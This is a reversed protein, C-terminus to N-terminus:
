KFFDKVKADVFSKFNIRFRDVNFREANRRIECPDFKDEVAEFKKVAKILSSEKQENFFIGTPSANNRSQIEEGTDELPIVTDRIGGRGFAIVPIGCAQAEVPAIGFDEEAAFIFARAKQLYIKLVDGRLHGMLEINKAAKRRVKNIDPGDGVVILPLGMNSFAQVILDVKKYPVMRSVTIYFEESGTKLQFDEVEVPPHIVTADRNYVRKIRDKIYTSNAIFYDVTKATSVDWKRLRTFFAKLITSKLGTDLGTEKLYQSELDWIYRMPTHCYSIHLQGPRKRIGKAVTHSSSIILDYGSLDMNRVALPMLALYGRYQSKAFPLKQIFSTNVKKDLIFRRNSEPLFDLISYLDADPYLGIIHQLVKESGAYSLLWEHIIATKM